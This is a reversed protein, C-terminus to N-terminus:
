IQHLGKERVPKAVIWRCCVKGILGGATLKLERGMDGVDDRLIQSEIRGSGVSFGLDDGVLKLFRDNGALVSELGEPCDCGL